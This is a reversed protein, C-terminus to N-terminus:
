RLQGPVYFFVTAALAYLGILQLGELWNSEGDRSVLYFLAVVLGLTAIELSSFALDLRHGFQSILVLAPAVFVAVQISSGSSVGLAVDMKNRWALVIASSHEAVNGILPVIIVGIFIPSWGLKHTFPKVTNVLAEAATFVVVTALGLVAISIPLPWRSIGRSSPL